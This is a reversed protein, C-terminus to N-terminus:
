LIKLCLKTAIHRYSIDTTISLNHVDVAFILHLKGGNWNQRSVWVKFPNLNLTTLYIRPNSIWNVGHGLSISFFIWWGWVWGCVWVCLYIFLYYLILFLFVSQSRLPIIYLNSFLIAERRFQLPTRYITQNFSSSTTFRTTFFRQM